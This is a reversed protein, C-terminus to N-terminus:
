AEVMDNALTQLMHNNESPSGISIRLADALQPLSRMDRVVIGAALLNSYAAAVNTFRVLLFNAESPYVKRVGRTCRLLAMLRQREGRIEAISRRTM